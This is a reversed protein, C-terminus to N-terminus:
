VAHILFGQNDTIYRIHRVLNETNYLQLSSISLLLIDKRHVIVLIKRLPDQEHEEDNTVIVALIQKFNVFHRLPEGM